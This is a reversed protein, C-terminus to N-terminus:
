MESEVGIAAYVTPCMSDKNRENMGVVCSLLSEIGSNNPFSTHEWNVPNETFVKFLNM